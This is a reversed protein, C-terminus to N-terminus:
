KNRFTLGTLAIIYVGRDADYELSYATPYYGPDEVINLQPINSWVPTDDLLSQMYALTIMPEFFTVKDQNSGYIFTKSFGAGSFEPSTIDSWHVGMHPVAFPAPGFVYTAPLVGREMLDYAGADLGGAIKMIQSQNIMYFHFDFHPLTYVGDPEHGEPNWGITIAKIGTAHLQGPLKLFYEGPMHPLNQLTEESIELGMATPHGNMMEVWTRVTGGWLSTSPGYYTSTLGKALNQNLNSPAVEEQSECGAFFFLTFLLPALFITKARTFINKM